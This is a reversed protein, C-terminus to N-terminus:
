CAVIRDTIRVNNTNYQKTKLRKTIGFLCPIRGPLKFSVSHGFVQLDELQCLFCLYVM